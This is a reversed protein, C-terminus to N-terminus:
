SRTASSHSTKKIEEWLPQLDPDNLAMSKMQEKGGVKIARKFWERAEDLKGMQCAYCSLNYPITAETSFMEAAPLLADWAARLGGEPVRRLAYAQHLWPGPDKPMAELQQRAIDLAGSWNKEATAIEWRVELVAPHKQQERSVSNLEARAEAPNELGLWGQAASIFHTDPPVLKRM